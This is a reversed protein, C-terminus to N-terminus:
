NCFFYTVGDITVSNYDHRLNCDWTLQYDVCLWNPIVVDVVETTIHEAFDREPSHSDTVYILRDEFEEMNDIGISNLEDVFPVISKVSDNDCFDSVEHEFRSLTTSYTTM